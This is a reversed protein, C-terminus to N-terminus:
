KSDIQSLLCPKRETSKGVTLKAATIAATAAAQTLGEVNPVAVM